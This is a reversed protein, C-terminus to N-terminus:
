KIVNLYFHMMFHPNQKNTWLQSIKTQMLNTIIRKICIICKSYRINWITENMKKKYGLYWCAVSKWCKEAFIM